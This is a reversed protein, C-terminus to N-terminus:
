WHAAAREGPVAANALFPTRQSWAHAEKRHNPKPEPQTARDRYPQGSRYLELLRQNQELLPQNGTAAALACATQATDIAKGFEGKEAYAAALTGVLMIEKYETLSCARQAFEVARAGNRFEAKPHTALLWALNNLAELANPDIRLAAELHPIGEESRGLKGLVSALNIQAIVHNPNAAIIVRLETEAEQWQKRQILSLSLNYRAKDYAPDIALAARYQESAKAPEGAAALAIGLGFHALPNASTVALTREFLTISDRWYQVQRASLLTLITFWALALSVGFKRLKSGLLDSGAWILAIAPGILPIYTYRDAMAQEGVQILGIVPLMTGLFWFWGVVLYPKHQRFRLCLSTIVVLLGISGWIQWQPWPHASVYRSGPHPYIVALKVPWFIKGVYQAYSCIANVIRDDWTLKPIMVMAGARGQIIFTLISFLLSLVFFPIKEPLLKICSVRGGAAQSFPDCRRLPWYDLLLLVFPLTVLMPKSMLGMAFFMLALMYWLASRRGAQAKRNAGPSNAQSVYAHYAWLTLMMFFGSLV